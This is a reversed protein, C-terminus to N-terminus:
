WSGYDPYKLSRNNATGINFTKKGTYRYVGSYRSAFTFVMYDSVECYVSVTAMSLETDLFIDGPRVMERETLRIYEKPLDEFFNVLLRIRAYDDSPFFKRIHDRVQIKDVNFELEEDSLYPNSEKNVM